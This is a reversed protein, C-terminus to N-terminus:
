CRVRPAFPRGSRASGADMPTLHSFLGKTGLARSGSLARTQSRSRAGQHRRHSLHLSEPRRPDAALGAVGRLLRQPLFEAPALDLRCLARLGPPLAAARIGARVLTLDLSLLGPPMRWYTLVRTGFYCFM